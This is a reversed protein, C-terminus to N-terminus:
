IHKILQKGNNEANNNFVIQPITFYKNITLLQDHQYNIYMIDDDHFFHGLAFCWWTFYWSIDEKLM